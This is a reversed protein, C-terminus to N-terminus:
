KAMVKLASTERNSAKSLTVNGNIDNLQISLGGRGSRAKLAGRVPESESIEVNPFDPTIAGNVEHANLDANVEGEFRLNVDGNVGGGIKINNARLPSSTIDIPGIINGIVIPGTALGIRVNGTVGDITLHGGVEGVMVDGGIRRIELGAKRPLRLVVRHRIEPLSDPSSDAGDHVNIAKLARRKVTRRPGRWDDDGVDNEGVYIHLNEQNNEPSIEVKQRQLDGRNRASRVILVEATETDATEVKVKGNIGIVFVQTHNTDVGFNKVGVVYVEM